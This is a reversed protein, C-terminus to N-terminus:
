TLLSKGDIVWHQEEYDYGNVLVADDDPKDGPQTVVLEGNPLKWQDRSTRM